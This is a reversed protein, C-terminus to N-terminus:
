SFELQVRMMLVGLQLMHGLRKRFISMKKKVLTTGLLVGMHGLWKRFISMKKMLTIGHLVGMLILYNM